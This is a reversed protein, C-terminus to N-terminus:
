RAREVIVFEVRRNREHDADTDGSSHPQTDGFAQSELRSPEIGGAVLLRIVTQARRQSLELNAEPTGERSAHAEIRLRRIEPHAQLFEVLERIAPRSEALVQTRNRPFLVLQGLRELVQEEASPPPPATDPCGDEDRFGNLTEPDSRCADSADPIGDRDDDPDPCGDSDEFGDRDEPEAPCADSADPIGDGDQDAIEAVAPESVDDDDPCGDEDRDGDVDEPETPCVDSADVIGDGDTDLASTAPGPYAISVGLTVLGADSGGPVPHETQFVHHYRLVPGARLLGAVDFEYGLGVDLGPRVVDGTLVVTGAVGLWLDGIGMAALPYGRAGLALAYYSGFGDTTPASASSPLWTATGRLEVGLWDLPRLEYALGLGGGVDFRNSQPTTVPIAVHGEIRGTHMPAQAHAAASTLAIVLWTLVGTVGAPAIESRGELGRKM